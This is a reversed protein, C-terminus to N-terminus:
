YQKYFGHIISLYAPKIQSRAVNKDPVALPPDHTRGLCAAM